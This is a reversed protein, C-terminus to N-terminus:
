SSRRYIISLISMIYIIPKRMNAMLIRYAIKDIRNMRDFYEVSSSHIM